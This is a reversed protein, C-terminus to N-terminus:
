SKTLLSAEKIAALTPTAGLASISGLTSVPAPEPIPIAKFLGSTELKVSSEINPKVKTPWSPIIEEVIGSGRNYGFLKKGVSSFIIECDNDLDWARIALPRRSCQM